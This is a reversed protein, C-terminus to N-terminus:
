LGTGRPQRLSWMLLLTLLGNAAIKVLAGLLQFHFVDFTAWVYLAFSLVVLAKEGITSARWFQRLRPVVM